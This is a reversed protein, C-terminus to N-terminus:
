LRLDEKYSVKVDMDLPRPIMPLPFQCGDNSCVAQLVLCLLEHLPFFLASYLSPRPIHPLLTAGDLSM